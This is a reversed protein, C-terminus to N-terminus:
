LLHRMNSFVLIPSYVLKLRSVVLVATAQNTRVQKTYGVVKKISFTATMYYIAFHTMICQLFPTAIRRRFPQDNVLMISYFTFAKPKAIRTILFRPILPINRRANTTVNSYRGPWNHQVMTLKDGVFGTKHGKIGVAFSRSASYSKYCPGDKLKSLEKM